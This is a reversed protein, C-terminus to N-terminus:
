ATVLLVMAHSRGRRSRNSGAARNRIWVMGGVAVFYGRLASDTYKTPPSGQYTLTPTSSFWGIVDEHCEM